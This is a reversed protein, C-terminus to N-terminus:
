VVGAPVAHNMALHKFHHAVLTQGIRPSASMVVRSIARRWLMTVQVSVVAAGPQTEHMGAKDQRLVAGCEPIQASAPLLDDGPDLGHGALLVADGLDSRSVRFPDVLPVLAAGVLPAHGVSLPVGSSHTAAHLSFPKRIVPSTKEGQSAM